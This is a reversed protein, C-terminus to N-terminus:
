KRAYKGIMEAYALEHGRMASEVDKRSAGPQVALATDLAFLWVRYRHAPGRPPCPGDYGTHHFDNQGQRAGGLGAVTPSQAVGEPIATVTSPIDFLIWHVFTGSPADPDDVILTLAATRSPAGTWSLAPSRNAGDCTFAAPISDENRFASSTLSITASLKITDARESASRSCSVIGGIGLGVLTIARRQSLGPGARIFRRRRTM